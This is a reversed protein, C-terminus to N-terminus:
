TRYTREKSAFLAGGCVCTAKLGFPFEYHGKYNIAMAIYYDGTVGGIRGWFLVEEFDEIEYVKTLSLELNVREELTLTQGTQNLKKFEVSLDRIGLM